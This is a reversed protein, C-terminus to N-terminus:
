TLEKLCLKILRESDAKDYISFSSRIGLRKAEEESASAPRTFTSVWEIRGAVRCARGGAAENRRRGQPSLSPMISFTFHGNSGGRLAIHLSATKGSGAGGGCARPRGSPEM